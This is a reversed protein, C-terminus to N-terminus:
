TATVKARRTVESEAKLWDDLEHGDERDRQEYLEYAKQRIQEQIKEASSRAEPKRNLMRIPKPM